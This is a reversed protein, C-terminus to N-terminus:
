FVRGVLTNRLCVYADRFFGQISSELERPRETKIKRKKERLGKRHNYGALEPREKSDIGSKKRGPRQRAQGPWARWRSLLIENFEHGGAPFFLFRIIPDVVFFVSRATRNIIAARSRRGNKEFYLPRNIRALWCGGNKPARKKITVLM